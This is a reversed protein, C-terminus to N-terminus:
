IDDGKDGDGEDRGKKGKGKGKGKGKDKGKGKSESEIFEASHIPSFTFSLAQPVNPPIPKATAAAILMLQVAQKPTTQQTVGSVFSRWATDTIMLGHQQLVRSIVDGLMKDIVILGTQPDPSFYLTGLPVDQWGQAPFQPGLDFKIRAALTTAFEQGLTM